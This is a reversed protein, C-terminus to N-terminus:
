LVFKSYPFRGLCYVQLFCPIGQFAFTWVPNLGAHVINSLVETEVPNHSLIVQAELVICM